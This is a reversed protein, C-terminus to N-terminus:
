EQISTGENKRISIFGKEPKILLEKLRGEKSAPTEEAPAEAKKPGSKIEEKLRRMEEEVLKFVEENTKAPPQTKQEVQGGEFFLLHRESFEQSRNMGTRACSYLFM